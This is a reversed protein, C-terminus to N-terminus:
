GTFFTGRDFFIGPVLLGRDTACRYTPLGPSGLWVPLRKVRSRTDQSQLDQELSELDRDFQNLNEYSEVLFERVVDQLVNM